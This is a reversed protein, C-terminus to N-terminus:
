STESGDGRLALVLLARVPGVRRNVRPLATGSCGVLMREPRGVDLLRVSCDREFKAALLLWLLQTAESTETGSAVRLVQLRELGLTGGLFVKLRQLLAHDASPVLVLGHVLQWQVDLLVGAVHDLDVQEAALLLHHQVHRLGRWRDGLQLLALVQELHRVRAGRDDRAPAVRVHLTLVQDFELM